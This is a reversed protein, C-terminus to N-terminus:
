YIRYIIFKYLCLYFSNSFSKRVCNTKSTNLSLFNGTKMTWEAHCISVKEASPWTPWEQRKSLVIKWKTTDVKVNSLTKVESHHECSSWWYLKPQASANIKVVFWTLKHGAGIIVKATTIGLLTIIKKIQLMM